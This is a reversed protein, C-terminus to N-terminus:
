PLCLRVETNTAAGLIHAANAHNAAIELYNRSGIIALLSGEPVSAYSPQLGQITQNNITITIKPYSGAPILSSLFDHHINTLLNGFRDISIISGTLIGTTKDFKAEPLSLVTLEDRNLVRGVNSEPFGNALHAAVPAFIDRGHFTNSLQKLFLQRCSVEYAIEFRPRQLLWTLVGNDPALFRHGDARALIIRRDSGVGPDVVIVHLTNAPFYAYSANILFAAQLIDQPLIGHSLDVIRAEPCIGLIVGKMVGAYEDAQGFDTTLTIIKNM